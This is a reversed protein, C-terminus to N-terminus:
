GTALLEEASDSSWRVYSDGEELLEGTDGQATDIVLFDFEESAVQQLIPLAWDLAALELRDYSLDKDSESVRRELWKKRKELQDIYGRKAKKAPTSM